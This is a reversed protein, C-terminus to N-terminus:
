PDSGAWDPDVTGKRAGSPRDGPTTADFRPTVPPSASSALEQSRFAAGARAAPQKSFSGTGVSLQVDACAFHANATTKGTM